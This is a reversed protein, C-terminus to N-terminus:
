SAALPLPDNASDLHEVTTFVLDSSGVNEIDHLLYEGAGFRFHRTEGASYSVDRTTGDFTHQRSTGANVATWFYDLVHRHAHWREGPALRIEWVRVRDNESLLRSGVEGDHAHADFEARLDDSWGEFNEGVLKGALPLDSLFSNTTM